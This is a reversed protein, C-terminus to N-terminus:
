VAVSVGFASSVALVTYVAVTVVATSSSVSVAKSFLKTHLKVVPADTSLWTGVTLELLGDSLAVSTKRLVLTLTIKLSAM